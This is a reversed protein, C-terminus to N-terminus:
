PRPPCVKLAQTLLCSLVHQLKSMNAAKLLEPDWLKFCQFAPLVRMLVNPTVRAPLRSTHMRCLQNIYFVLVTDDCPSLAPEMSGHVLMTATDAATFHLGDTVIKRVSHTLHECAEQFHHSQKVKEPLHSLARTLKVTQYRDLISSKLRESLEPLIHNCMQEEAKACIAEGEAHLRSGKPARSPTCLNSVASVVQVLDANSLHACHRPLTDVLPGALTVYRGLMLPSSGERRLHVVGLIALVDCASSDSLQDLNELTPAQLCALNSPACCTATSAHV